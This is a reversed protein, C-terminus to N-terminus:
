LMIYYFILGSCAKVSPASEAAPEDGQAVGTSTVTAWRSSFSTVREDLRPVPSGTGPTSNRKARAHKTTNQSDEFGLTDM